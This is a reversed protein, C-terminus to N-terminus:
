RLTHEYITNLPLLARSDYDQICRRVLPSRLREEPLEDIVERALWLAQEIDTDIPSNTKEIAKAGFCFRYYTNGNSPAQYTYMGLLGTLEVRWGTEEATERVAAALISEGQEIHGAPQNLVLQGQKREEVMLLKKNREVITAVTAHPTWIM